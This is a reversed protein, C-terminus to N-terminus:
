RKIYRQCRFCARATSLSQKYIMSFIFNTLLGNHLCVSGRIGIQSELPLGRQAFITPVKKPNSISLKFRVRSFSNPEVGVRSRASRVPLLLTFLSCHINFFHIFCVPLTLYYSFVALKEFFNHSSLSFIRQINLTSCSVLILISIFM